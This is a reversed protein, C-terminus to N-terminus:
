DLTRFNEFTELPMDVAIQTLMPIMGELFKRYNGAFTNESVVTGDDEEMVVEVRITNEWQPDPQKLKERASILFRIWLGALFAAVIDKKITRLLRADFMVGLNGSDVKNCAYEAIRRAKALLAASIGYDNLIRYSAAVEFTTDIPYETEVGQGGGIKMPGPSLKRNSYNRITRATINIGLSKLEERVKSIPKSEM